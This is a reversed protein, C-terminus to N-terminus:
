LNCSCFWQSKLCGGGGPTNTCGVFECDNVCSADSCSGPQGATFCSFIAQLLIDLTPDDTTEITTDFDDKTNLMVFNITESSGNTYTVVMPIDTKTYRGADTLEPAIGYAKGTSTIHLFSPLDGIVEIQKVHWPNFMQFVFKTKEVIKYYSLIINEDGVYTRTDLFTTIQNNSLSYRPDSLDLLDRRGLATSRHYMYPSVRSYELPTVGGTAFNYALASSQIAASISTGAVYGYGGGLKAAWIMEGPAFGDLENFNTAGPTYSIESFGAYDTFDSPKLENNYAGITLVEPMSAPTVDSIPKGSNGAAVVFFVGFDMLQRIKNEIFINKEISWSANVIYHDENTSKYDQYIADLAAIIDSQKTSMSADFIKVSKVTANTMGCTKGIMVSALATGHGKNDTFNNNFSFLNQVDAGEFEPHSIDIGSDLLYIVTGLGRRNTQYVPADLDPDVLSYFKWWNKEDNPVSILPVSGDTVVKGFNQDAVIVTNLLQIPNDDDHIIHEIITSDIPSIPAEVLYVSEFADYEKLITAGISQLYETVQETSTDNKFDILYRSM